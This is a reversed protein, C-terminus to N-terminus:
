EADWHRRGLQLSEALWGRRGGQVQHAGRPLGLTVAAM